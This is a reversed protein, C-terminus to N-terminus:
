SGYMAPRKWSKVDPEREMMFHEMLAAMYPDYNMVGRGWEVIYGM